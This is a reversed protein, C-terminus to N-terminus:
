KAVHMACAICPVTLLLVLLLRRLLRRSRPSLTLRANIPNLTDAQTTAVNMRM